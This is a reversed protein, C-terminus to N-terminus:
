AATIADRDAHGPFLGHDCSRYHWLFYPNLQDNTEDQVEMDHKKHVAHRIQFNGM